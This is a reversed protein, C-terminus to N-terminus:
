LKDNAFGSHALLKAMIELMIGKYFEKIPISNHLAVCCKVCLVYVSCVDVFFLDCVKGDVFSFTEVELYYNSITIM